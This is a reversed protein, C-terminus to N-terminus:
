LNPDVCNTYFVGEIRLFSEIKNLSNRVDYISLAVTRISKLPPQVLYIFNIVTYIMSISLIHELQQNQLYNVFVILTLIFMPALM